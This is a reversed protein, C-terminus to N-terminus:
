REIKKKLIKIINKFTNYNQAQIRNTETQNIVGNKNQWKRKYFIGCNKQKSTYNVSFRYNTTFLRNLSVCLLYKNVRHDVM